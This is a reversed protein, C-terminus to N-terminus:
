IGLCNQERYFVATRDLTRDGPKIGEFEIKKFGKLMLYEFTQAYGQRHSDDFIIVGDPKLYPLSQVCCANREIGDIVILDFKLNNHQESIYKAFYAYPIESEQTALFLHANHPLRDKIINVFFSNHEVSFVTQVYRAWFFTSTGSGFELLVMHSRLRERIFAIFSFNMWPLPHGNIDCPHGTLITKKWGTKHLYSNKSLCLLRLNNVLRIITLHRRAFWKFSVSM